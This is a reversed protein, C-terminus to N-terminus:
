RSTWLRVKLPREVAKQLRKKIEHQGGIDSWRVRPTELFVERMATPRTEQLASLIDGTEIKLSVAAEEDIRLEQLDESITNAPVMSQNGNGKSQRQRAKRCVLQLLAFIDAGVYGHTKDAILEIHEQSLTSSPGGCIATAIESRDRSTPIQLEIENALRHPTRLADDVNNPHRSAGVVLVRASKTSDLCECLMAALSQTDFSQKKPAFFELQDIIVASPQCRIAEQFINRLRSEGDGANRSLESSGFEFTRRWGALRIRSLLATKGTGKPGYLLIGRSHEFFSPMVINGANPHFDALNENIVQVQRSMGGLGLPTVQLRAIQDDEADQVEDVLIRSAENFRFLTNDDQTSGRIGAIKFSRKQGRLELDFILGVALAECKLLPFELAWAWHIKDAPAISGYKDIKESNSCDLLSIWEIEALVEDPKIISVQDGIKMGYCEQLTKSAQVISKAISEPSNWAVAQKSAGGSLLLRCVDGAKLKLNALSTTSLYVRFADRHDIRMQKSLPRLTFDRNEPM